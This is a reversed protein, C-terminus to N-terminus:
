IYLKLCLSLNHKRNPNRNKQFNHMVRTSLYQENQPTSM